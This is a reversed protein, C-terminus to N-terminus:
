ALDRMTPQPGTGAFGRLLGDLAARHDEPPATPGFAGAAESALAAAIEARERALDPDPASLAEAVARVIRAVFAARLPQGCQSPAATGATM